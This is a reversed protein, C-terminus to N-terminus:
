SEATRAAVSRRRTPPAAAIERKLYAIGALTVAVLEWGDVGSRNLVDVDDAGRPLDLLSIKLYEWKTM